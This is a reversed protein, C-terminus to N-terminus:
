FIESRGVRLVFVLIPVALMWGAVTRKEKQWAGYCSRKRGTQRVCAAVGHEGDQFPWARDRVSHLGCCNFADQIYRIAATDKARFLAQWREDLSCKEGIYPAFYAAALTALVVEIIVQTAMTIFFVRRHVSTEKVCRKWSHLMCAGTAGVAMVPWVSIVVGLSLPLTLAYDAIRKAILRAAVQDTM